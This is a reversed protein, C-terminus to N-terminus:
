GHPIEAHSPDWGIQDPESAKWGFRGGWRLGLSEVIAGIKWWVPDQLNWTVKDPGHLQFVEFPVLDIAMGDQHRSRAVKSRGLRVAEAQEAASRGTTVILVPIQAEALRALLEVALPRFEPSLEALKRGM